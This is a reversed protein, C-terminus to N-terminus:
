KTNGWETIDPVRDQGRGAQTRDLRLTNRLDHLAAPPNALNMGAEVEDLHRVCLRAAGAMDGTALAEVIRCHDAHSALAGDTSQYQLSILITRATLNRIIESLADNGSVEVIRVHFDAMLFTLLTKDGQAIAAREEDLHSRLRAIAKEDFPATNSLFGFEVYRRTAFVQAAEDADPTNIFWGKRPRSSVVHRAELRTLAARVMTRSVGFAQALQNESLRSGPLIRGEVIAALVTGEITKTM